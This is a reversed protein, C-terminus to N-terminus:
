KGVREISYNDFLYDLWLNSLHEQLRNQSLRDTLNDIDIMDL